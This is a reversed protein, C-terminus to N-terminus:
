GTVGMPVLLHGRPADRLVLPVPSRRRCWRVVRQVREATFPACYRTEIAVAPPHDPRGARLPDTRLDYVPFARCAYPRRAEAHILCRGDVCLPCPGSRYVYMVRQGPLADIRPQVGVLHTCAVVFYRAEALSLPLGFTAGLVTTCCPKPCSVCLLTLLDGVFRHLDEPMWFRGRPAVVSRRPPRVRRIMYRGM